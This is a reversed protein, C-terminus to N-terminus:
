QIDGQIAGAPALQRLKNRSKVQNAAERLPDRRAQSALREGKGINGIAKAAGAAYSGGPVSNLGRELFALVNAMTDSGRIGSAPATKADRTVELLNDLKQKTRPGFIENLKDPGIRDIARKMAAPTVNPAVGDPGREIGKTAEREIFAITEAKIDRWAKVGASRTQRTGGTLLSRKVSRLDDASGRLVADNWTEELAVSRDTRSKDSVLRSVAGQEQFELAQDRRAKRAAAYKQGGAGDTAKDIARVIKGAQYGDSGGNKVRANADRRLGELTELSLKNTVTGNSTKQVVKNDRLWSMVWKLDSKDAAKTLVEIIPKPSVKGQLEGATRAETYLRDVEAEKAKLKERLASDQVSRGVQEPGQAGAARSGKGSVKGKLVSLNDLIAQNEAIQLERIPAGADTQAANRENRLAVPDQKIQSARLPVPVPLSEARAQREVAKPDLKGLQKSDSAIDTLTKRTSQALSDFTLGTNSGVYNRASSEAQAAAQAQQAPTKKGASRLALAPLFQTATNVAAGAAPSGTADTTKQGLDDALKALKEFPYSVVANGAQGARTRPQYTLFRQIREGLSTLDVDSIGLLNGAGAGLMAIGSAPLAVLGSGLTLAPEIVADAANGRSAFEQAAAVRPDAPAAKPQPTPSPLDVPEFGAFEDQSAQVPEFNAYEDAM